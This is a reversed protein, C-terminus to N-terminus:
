ARHVSLEWAYILLMGILVTMVGWAFRGYLGLALTPRGTTVLVFSEVAAAAALLSALVRGTLGLTM